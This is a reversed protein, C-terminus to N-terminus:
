VRSDNSQTSIHYMFFSLFVSRLNGDSLFNLRPYRLYRQILQGYCSAERETIKEKYTQLIKAFWTELVNKMNFVPRHYIFCFIKLFTVQAIFYYNTVRAIFLLEYRRCHAIFTIALNRLLYYSTVRICFTVRLKHFLCYSTVRVIFM